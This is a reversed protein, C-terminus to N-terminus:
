SDSTLHKALRKGMSILTVTPPQGFPEPIISNDLCYCNKIETQCYSDLHKGIRVTGGPHGGLPKSAFIDKLKVGSKLLIEEAIRTGKNLKKM